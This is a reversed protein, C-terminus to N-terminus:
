PEDRGHDDAIMAPYRADTIGHKEKLRDVLPKQDILFRNFADIVAPHKITSLLYANQVHPLAEDFVLADPGQFADGLRHAAVLPNAYAADIRDLAVQKLLGELGANESLTMRGSKIYEMFPWPSYGMVMGLRKLRELGKGKNESRVIVGDVANVTTRSYHVTVSDKLHTQWRSNDPYKFDIRGEMLYIFLRNIPLPLYTLRIGHERAFADLLDRGYGIYNQGTGSFYPLYDHDEVGVVYEEARLDTTILHFFLSLLGMLLLRHM